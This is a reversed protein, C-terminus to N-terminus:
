VKGMTTFNVTYLKGRRSLLVSVFNAIAHESSAGRKNLLSICCSCTHTCLRCFLFSFQVDSFLLLCGCCLFFMVASTAAFVSSFDRGQSYFGGWKGSVTLFVILFYSWYLM